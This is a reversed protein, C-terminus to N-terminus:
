HNRAWVDGRTRCGRVAAHLRCGAHLMHQVPRCKERLARTGASPCFLQGDPSTALSGPQAACHNLHLLAPAGGAGSAAFCARCAVSCAAPDFTCMRCTRLGGGDASLHLMQRLTLFPCTQGKSGVDAAAHATRMCAPHPPLPPPILPRGSRPQLCARVPAAVTSFGMREAAFDCACSHWGHM